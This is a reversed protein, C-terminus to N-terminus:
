KRSSSKKRGGGSKKNVTRWAREEAEKKGVGRKEYGEEIHNAQRKQKQTYSSKDGQPMNSTRSPFRIGYARNIKTKGATGPNFNQPRLVARNQNNGQRSAAPFFSSDPDSRSLPTPPIRKRAHHTGEPKEVRLRHRAEAVLQRSPWVSSFLASSEPSFIDLCSATYYDRRLSPERGSQTPTPSLAKGNRISTDPLHRITPLCGSRCSNFEPVPEPGPRDGLLSARM